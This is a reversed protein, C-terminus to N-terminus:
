IEWVNSVNRTGLVAFIYCTYMSMLMSVSFIYRSTQHIFISPCAVRRICPLDDTVCLYHSLHSLCVKVDGLEDLLSQHYSGKM